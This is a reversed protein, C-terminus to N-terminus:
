SSRYSNPSGTLARERPLVYDSGRIRLETRGIRIVRDGDLVVRQVREAQRDVHLGNLTGIDEAVLARTAVGFACISWRSTPITSSSTM